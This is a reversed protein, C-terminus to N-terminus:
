SLKIKDDKNILNELISNYNMVIRVNLKYFGIFFNFYFLIKYIYLFICRYENFLVISMYMVIDNM